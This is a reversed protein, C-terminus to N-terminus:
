TKTDYSPQQKIQNLGTKAGTM